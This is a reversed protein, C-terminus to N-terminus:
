LEKPRLLQHLTWNPVEALADQWTAGEASLLVANATTLSVSEGCLWEVVSEWGFNHGLVLVSEVGDPLKSLEDDVAEAGTLYFSDLFTVEPEGLAENMLAFTERTRTASSSLVREPAWGLETLRAGIRPADARGRKNLPRQHDSQGANKWSSKAHRMVVIRRQM